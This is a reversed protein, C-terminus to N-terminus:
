VCEGNTSKKLHKLNGLGDLLTKTVTQNHESAYEYIDRYEKETLRVTVNKVKPNDSKPRGMVAM